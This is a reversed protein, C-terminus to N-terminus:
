FALVAVFTYTTHTIHLPYLYTFWYSFIFVVTSSSGVIEGSLEWISSKSNNPFTSFFTSDSNYLSALYLLMTTKKSNKKNKNKASDRLSFSKLLIICLTLSSPKFYANTPMATSSLLRTHKRFLVQAIWLWLMVFPWVRQGLLRCEHFYTVPFDDLFLHMFFLGFHKIRLIEKPGSIPRLQTQFGCQSSLSMPSRLCGM